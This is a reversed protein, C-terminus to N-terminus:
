QIPRTILRRCDDIVACLDSRLENWVALEATNDAPITAAIVDATAEILDVYWDAPVQLTDNHHPVSGLLLIEIEGPSNFWHMMCHLTNEIMQGELQALNGLSHKEFAALAAPCRRYYAQMSPGTVDGIQEAARMLIDDVRATKEAAIIKEQIM